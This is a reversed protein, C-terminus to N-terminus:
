VISNNNNSYLMECWGITIITMTIPTMHCRLPGKSVRSTGLFGQIDKIRLFVLLDGLYSLNSFLSTGFNPLGIAAKSNGGRGEFM